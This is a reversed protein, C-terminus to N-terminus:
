KLHKKILEEELIARSEEDTPPPADTKLIGLLGKLSGKRPPQGVPYTEVTELPKVTEDDPLTQNTKLLGQDDAASFGRTQSPPSPAPAEAKDLSELIKRALTIRLTTPWTKVRDLVDTLDTAEANRV